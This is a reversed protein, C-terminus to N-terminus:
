SHRLFDNMTALCENLAEEQVFHGCALREVRANPFRNIWKELYDRNIFADKEGWIFQIPTNDFVGLRGWQAQYWDSAGVLSQALLYPGHRDAKNAFPRIYQNHIRPSLM